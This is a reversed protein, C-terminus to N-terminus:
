GDVKCYIDSSPSTEIETVCTSNYLVLIDGTCNEKFYDNCGTTPDHPAQKGRAFLECVPRPEQWYETLFVSCYSENYVLTMNAYPKKHDGKHVLDVSGLPEASNNFTGHLLTRAWNNGRLQKRKKLLDVDENSINCTKYFMCRKEEVICPSYECSPSKSINQKYLWLKDTTNFVMVIPLTETVVDETTVAQTAIVTHKSLPLTAVILACLFYCVEGSRHMM